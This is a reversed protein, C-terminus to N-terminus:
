KLSKDGNNYGLLFMGIASCATARTTSLLSEVDFIMLELRKTSPSHAHAHLSQADALPDSDGTNMLFIM